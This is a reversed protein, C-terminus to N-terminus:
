KEYDLDKELSGWKFQVIDRPKTKQGRLAPNWTQFTIPGLGYLGM